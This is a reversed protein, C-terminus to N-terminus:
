HDIDLFSDLFMHHLFLKQNLFQGLFKITTFHKKTITHVYQEMPFFFKTSIFVVNLLSNFFM